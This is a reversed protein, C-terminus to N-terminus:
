QKLLCQKELKTRLKIQVSDILYRVAIVTLTPTATLLMFKMMMMELRFKLNFHTITVEV